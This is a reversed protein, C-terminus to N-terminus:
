VDPHRTHWNPDPGAIAEFMATDAVIRTMPGIQDLSGALQPQGSVPETSGCSSWLPM